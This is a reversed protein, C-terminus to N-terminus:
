AVSGRRSACPDGAKPLRQCRGNSPVRVNKHIKTKAWDGDGGLFLAVQLFLKPFFAQNVCRM